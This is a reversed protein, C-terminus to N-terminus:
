KLTSCNWTTFGKNRFEALYDKFEKESLSSCKKHYWKKCVYCGISSTNERIIKNCSQCTQKSAAM